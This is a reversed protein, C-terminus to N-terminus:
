VKLNWTRRVGNIDGAAIFFIKVDFKLLADGDNDFSRVFANYNVSIRLVRLIAIYRLRNSRRPGCPGIEKLCSRGPYATGLAAKGNWFLRLISSGVHKQTIM